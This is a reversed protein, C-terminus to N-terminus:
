AIDLKMCSNNTDCSSNANKVSVQLHRHVKMKLKQFILFPSLCQAELVPFYKECM